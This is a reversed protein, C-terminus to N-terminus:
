MEDKKKKEKEWEIAFEDLENYWAEGFKRILPEKLFRYLPLGTAQGAIEAPRCIKWRSYNLARFTKYKAVRIPYLHCSVPKIFDIRGERHAKEIVCKCIGKEDHCTFVCDRGNVLSTVVEGDEDIYGIGQNKIVAQAEPSLDDWLQPLLTKLLRYESDELPAGSDGEVCCAGKCKALDCIFTKEIIDLSTLTDDIRIM